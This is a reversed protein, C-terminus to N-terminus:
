VSRSPYPHHLNVLRDEAAQLLRVRGADSGLEFMTEIIHFMADNPPNEVFSALLSGHTLAQGSFRASEGTAELLATWTGLSVEMWQSMDQLAVSLKRYADQLSPPWTSHDESHKKNSTASHAM